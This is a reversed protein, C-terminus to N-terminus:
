QTDGGRDSVLSGIAIGIPLAGFGALLPLASVVGHRMLLWVAAVLGFMKLLAVLAWAGKGRQAGEATSPLLAGVIRALAWLNAFAIGAGVAVSLATGVGFFALAALAMVGGTWGVARLYVRLRPDAGSSPPDGARSMM